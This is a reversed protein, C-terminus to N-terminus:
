GTSCQTPRGDGLAPITTKDRGQHDNSVRSLSCWALFRLEWSFHGMLMRGRLSCHRLVFSDMCFQNAASLWAPCSIRRCACINPLSINLLQLQFSSAGSTLPVLKSVSNLEPPSHSPQTKGPPENTPPFLRCFASASTALKQFPKKHEIHSLLKQLVVLYYTESDSAQSSFYFTERKEAWAFWQWYDPLGADSVHEVIFLFHQGNTWYTPIVCVLLCQCLSHASKTNVPLHQGLVLKKPATTGTWPECDCCFEM